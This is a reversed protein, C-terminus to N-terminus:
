RAGGKGLNQHGVSRGITADPKRCRGAHIREPHQFLIVDHRRLLDQERKVDIKFDPYEEYLDHITVGEVTGAVTLLRRSIRSKGLAPHAFLILIRRPVAM